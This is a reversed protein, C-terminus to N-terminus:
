SRRCSSIFGLKQLKEVTLHLMSSSRDGDWVVLLAEVKGISFCCFNSIMSSLFGPKTFPAEWCPLDPSSSSASLSLTTTFVKVKDINTWMGKPENIAENFRDFLLLSSSLHQPFSSSFLKSHFVPNSQASAFSKTHFFSAYSQSFRLDSPVFQCESRTFQFSVCQAARYGIRIVISTCM